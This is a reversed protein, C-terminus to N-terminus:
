QWETSCLQLSATMSSFVSLQKVCLKKRLGSSSAHPSTFNNGSVVARLKVSNYWGVLVTTSFLCNRSKLCLLITLLSSTIIDIHREPCCCVSLYNDGASYHSCFIETCWFNLVGWEADVVSKWLTSQLVHQPEFKVSWLNIPSSPTFFPLNCTDPYKRLKTSSPLNMAISLTHSAGAANDETLVDPLSHCKPTVDM